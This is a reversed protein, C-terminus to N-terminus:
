QPAIPTVEGLGTVKIAWVADKRFRMYSELSTPKWLYRKSGREFEVEDRGQNESRCARCSWTNEIIWSRKVHEDEDAM